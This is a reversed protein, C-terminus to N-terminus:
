CESVEKRVATVTLELADDVDSFLQWLRELSHAPKGTLTLSIRDFPFRSAAHSETTADASVKREVPVPISCSCASSVPSEPVDPSIFGLWAAKQVRAQRRNERPVSCGTLLNYVTSKSCGLMGALQEYTPCYRETLRAIYERRVDEPWQKLEAATHPTDMNYTNVTGNRRKMQTPTLYEHPLTCRRSKSGCVRHRAGRAASKRERQQEVFTFREDTM